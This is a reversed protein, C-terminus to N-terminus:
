IAGVAQTHQRLSLTFKIMLNVDNVILFLFMRFNQLYFLIINIHILGFALSVNVIIIQGQRYM